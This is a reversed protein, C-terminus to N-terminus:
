NRARRRLRRRRARVATIAGGVVVAGVIYEGVGLGGTTEPVVPTKCPSTEQVSVVATKASVEVRCGDPYVIIAASWSVIKLGEIKMDSLWM